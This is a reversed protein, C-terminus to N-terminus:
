FFRPSVSVKKPLNLDFLLMFEHSSPSAVKLESIVHDYAYGLRINPTVRYNLM